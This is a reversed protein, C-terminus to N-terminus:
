ISRSFTETFGESRIWVYQRSECGFHVQDKRQQREIERQARELEIKEGVLLAYKLARDSYDACKEAENVRKSADEFLEESLSTLHNVESSFKTGEKQYRNLVNRNRVMRSKAFEYNLNLGGSPIERASYYQGGNDATLYIFGFDEIFWRANIGYKRGPIM